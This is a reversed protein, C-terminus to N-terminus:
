YPGTSTLHMTIEGRTVRSFHGAEGTLESITRRFASRRVEPMVMNILLVVTIICFSIWFGWAVSVTSGIISAGIMFGISLPGVMSWSLLGLWMGMGGGHQRVDHINDKHSSSQSQLSAGFCDLLTAKINMDVLGFALGSVARSALLLCRFEPQSPDRWGNVALGQPIQLALAFLQAAIIYPKRGHLLPLPWLLLGTVAMGSYMLVNGLITYHHFDAIAYQIAPVEGAYIGLVLGICSTNLCAILATFRKRSSPWNRAITAHYCYQHIDLDTPLNYVDVHSKKRLDIKPPRSIADSHNLNISVQRSSLGFVDSYHREHGERAVPLPAAAGDSPEANDSSEVKVGNVILIPLGRPLRAHLSSSRPGVEPHLLTSLGHKTPGHHITGTTPTVPSKIPQTQKDLSLTENEASHVQSQQDISEPQDEKRRGHKLGGSVSLTFVPHAVTPDVFTLQASDKAIPAPCTARTQRTTGSRPSAVGAASDTSERITETEEYDASASEREEGHFTVKEALQAAELLLSELKALSARLEKSAQHKIPTRNAAHASSFHHSQLSEISPFQFGRRTTLSRIPPIPQAQSVPWGNEQPAANETRVATSVTSPEDASVQSIDPRAFGPSYQLNDNGSLSAQSDTM